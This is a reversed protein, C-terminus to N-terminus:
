GVRRLSVAIGAAVGPLLLVAFWFVTRRQSPTMTLMRGQPVRRPIAVVQEQALWRVISLFMESNGPVNASYNAVFDSDGIVVVRPERSPAGGTSPPRAAPSV